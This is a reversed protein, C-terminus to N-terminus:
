MQKFEPSVKNASYKKSKSFLMTQWATKAVQPMIMEELSNHKPDGDMVMVVLKSPKFQM